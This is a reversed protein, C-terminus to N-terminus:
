TEVGSPGVSYRKPIVLTHAKRCTMVDRGLLRSVILRRKLLNHRHGADYSSLAHFDEVVPRWADQPWAGAHRRRGLAMGYM